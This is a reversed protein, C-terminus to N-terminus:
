KMRSRIVCAVAKASVHRLCRVRMRLSNPSCVSAPGMTSCSAWQCNWRRPDPIRLATCCSGTANSCICIPSTSSLTRTSKYHCQNARSRKGDTGLLESKAICPQTHQYTCVTDDFKVTSNEWLSKNSNKLPKSPMWCANSEIALEFLHSTKRSLRKQKYM